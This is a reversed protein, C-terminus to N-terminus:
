TKQETFVPAFYKWEEFFAAPLRYPQCEIIARLASEQYVRLYPTAPTGEPVPMGELSGDRKLRIAFVAESKQQEIGGYPKKWCREVQQKFMAGWTASNDAAAGKSLGLAANSNLTDGTAAQRTPDRKDLLAAIKSQDFARETKPKAPEPPKAAQQVPKPPPKKEEKKIAEAIPDPKVPDPKKEIPKPEEKPKEVVKPPDPKKEVPKEEVKPQPPPSTDTVVPAKESVKGVADDVPKAEAVKDVLPKPNEKKGTKMGAMIHALQDPSVVDVPVSDEPTMELARTSFSVMTWGLVLVHLVVSAVLTKDVKVKM